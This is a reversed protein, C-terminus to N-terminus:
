PSARDASTSLSLSGVPAPFNVERLFFCEIPDSFYGFIRMDDDIGRECRLFARILGQLFHLIEGYLRLRM